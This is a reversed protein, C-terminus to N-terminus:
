SVSGSILGPRWTVTSSFRLALFYTGIVTGIVFVLSGATIPSIEWKLLVGVLVAFGAAVIIKLSARSFPHLRQVSWIELMAMANGCIRAVAVAIAAGAIGWRPILLLCLSITLLGSTIGNLLMLGSRGMMALLTTNCGTASDVVFGLTLIALATAGEGYGAGFLTAMTARSFLTLVIALPLTWILSFYASAKYISGIAEFDSQGYLVGAKPGFAYDIAGRALVLAPTLRFAAAYIGSAKVSLLLGVFLVDIGMGLSVFNQISYFVFPLAYKFWRRKSTTSAKTAPPLGKAHHELAFMAILFLVVTSGVLGAIAARTADGFWWLLAFPLALRMAPQLVKELIIRSRVHQLALIAQLVLLQLAGAPIAILLYRWFPRLPALKGFPILNWRFLSFLVMAVACSTALVGVFCFRLVTRILGREGSGEYYTAFRAVLNDMGMTGLGGILSAAVLFLSYIGFGEAGLWRAFVVGTLVGLLGNVVMGAASFTSGQVLVKIHAGQDGPSPSKAVAENM